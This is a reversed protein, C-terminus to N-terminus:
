QQVGPAKSSKSLVHGSNNVIVPEDTHLYDQGNTVLAEGAQLGSLIQVYGNYFNGVKVDRLVAKGNEVIYAQNGGLNTLLSGTPITVQNTMVKTQQTVKVNQGPKFDSGAKMEAKLTILGTDISPAIYTVKGMAKNNPNLESQVEVQQGVKYEARASAPLQYQVTLNDPDYLTAITTGSNLLDGVHFDTSSIVGSFPAKITLESLLATDQELLAKAQKYSSYSDDYDSQSILGKDRLNSQRTWENKAQTLQAQDQAVQAQATRTDQTLLVQGKKVTEGGYFKISTIRNTQLSTLTVYDKSLISGYGSEQDYLTRTSIPQTEVQAASLHRSPSTEGIYRYSVGAATLIVIASLCLALKKPRM